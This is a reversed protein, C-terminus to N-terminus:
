RSFDVPHWSKTYSLCGRACSSLPPRPPRRRGAVDALSEDGAKFREAMDRKVEREFEARSFSYGFERAIELVEDATVKGGREVAALVRASLKPDKQAQRLFEIPSAQKM